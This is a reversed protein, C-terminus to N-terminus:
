SPLYSAPHCCRSYTSCCRSYTLLAEGVQLGTTTELRAVLVDTWTPVLGLPVRDQLGHLLELPDVAPERPAGAVRVLHLQVLPQEVHEVGGGVHVGVLAGPLQDEGEAVM